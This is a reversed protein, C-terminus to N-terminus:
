AGGGGGTGQSGEVYGYIWICGRSELIRIIVGDIIVRNVEGELVFLLHRTNNSCEIVIVLASTVLEGKGLVGDNCIYFLM